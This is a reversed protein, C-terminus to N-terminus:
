SVPDPSREGRVVRWTVVACAALGVSVWLPGGGAAIVLGGLLPGAAAGVNFAATAFAGGLLPADGALTMTRAILSSGVGFSLAALAPVLVGIAVPSEATLAFLAWGVPLLPWLRSLRSSLTVGVFSGLGFLALLAPVWTIGADGAVVALYTFACFTAGNVLAALLLTHLLRPQKLVRFQHWAGTEATRGSPIMWMAALPPVCLAAVAWFVARWGLYTGLWAGAPVGVVCALTVGALLVSTAKAKADTLTSATALAVALFGADAVAAVVRTVMLLPYSTTMAGAVHAAAFLVLFLILAGRRSMRLTLVAMLPAGVIMGLAFASTLNGAAQVPVNLDAAIDPLLGSLMFESTGQAFVALALMFVTFPM